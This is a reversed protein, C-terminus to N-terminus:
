TSEKAAIVKRMGLRYGRRKKGAWFRKNAASMKARTEASVPRRNKQLRSVIARQEKDSLGNWWAKSKASLCARVEPGITFGRNGDGGKNMNYEPRLRAIHLIERADLMEIPCRELIIFEFADKGHKRFARGIVSRAQHTKTRHSTLRKRFNITQGVYRHGTNKNVLMYIGSGSEM